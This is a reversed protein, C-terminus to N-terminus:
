WLWLRRQKLWWAAARRDQDPDIFAKDACSGSIFLSSSVRAKRIRCRECAQATRSRKKIEPAPQGDAGIIVPKVGLGIDMGFHDRRYLGPTGIYGYGMEMGPASHSMPAALYETGGCAEPGMMPSPAYSFGGDSPLPSLSLANMGWPTHPASGPMPSYNGNAILPSGFQAPTNTPPTVLGFQMDPQHFHGSQPTNYSYAYAAGANAQATNLRYMNRPPQQNPNSLPVAYQSTPYPQAM